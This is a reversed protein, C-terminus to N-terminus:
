MVMLEVLIQGNTLWYTLSKPRNEHRAAKVPRGPPHWPGTPCAAWPLHVRPLATWIFLTLNASQWNTAQNTLIPQNKIQNAPQSTTIAHEALTKNKYTCKSTYVFHMVQAHLRARVDAMFQGPHLQVDWGLGLNTRKRKALTSVTPFCHPYSSRRCMAIHNEIAIIVEEGLFLPVQPLLGHSEQPDQREWPRLEQITQSDCSPLDLSRATSAPVM